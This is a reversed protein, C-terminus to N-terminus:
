LDGRQEKQVMPDYSTTDKGQSKALKKADSWSSTQEGNVNPVMKQAPAVHEKMKRGARNNRATMQDKCKIDKGPWGDGVLIFSTESVGRYTDVSGCEPCPFEKQASYESISMSEEFAEECTRCVFEYTPM